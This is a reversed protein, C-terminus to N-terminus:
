NTDNQIRPSFFLFKRKPSRLNHAIGELWPVVQSFSPRQEMNASWCSELLIRLDTPWKKSCTPRHNNEVVFGTFTSAVLDHYPLKLSLVQWAIIAFSYIDCKGNYMDGRIVEPATYRLTGTEATMQYVQNDLSSSRIVKALGFDYLKVTGNDAIGINDPKLDRHLVCKGKIAKHQLYELAKALM